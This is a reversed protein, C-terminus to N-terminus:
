IVVEFGTAALFDFFTPVVHTVTKPYFSSKQRSTSLYRVNATVCNCYMLVAYTGFYTRSPQM